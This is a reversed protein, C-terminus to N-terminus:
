SRRRLLAAGLGSILLLALTAPEPVPEFAGIWSGTDSATASPESWDYRLWNPDFRNADDKIFGGLLFGPDVAIDNPGAGTGDNWNAETYPDFCNYVNNYNGGGRHLTQDQVNDVIISNKLWHTPDDGGVDVEDNWARSNLATITLHDGTAAATGYGTNVGAANWGSAQSGTSGGLVSYEIHLTLVGSLPIKNSCGRQFDSNGRQHHEKQEM